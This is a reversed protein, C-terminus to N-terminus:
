PRNALVPRCPVPQRAPRLSVRLRGPDPQPGPNRRPGRGPRRGGEHHRSRHRVHGPPRRLGQLRHQPASPDPLQPLHHARPARRLMRHRPAPHAGDGGALRRLLRRRGPLRGARYAVIKLDQDLGLKFDFSYPHRKGTMVMDDARSLVLKVPRKMLHAGLAALCAWPTAQDEKGGFGGGLRNTDVEIRHMAIGLVRSVGRQVYKTAQTSTRVAVGGNEAPSAYSAQTELYLHEQGGMDARGEFLHACQAWATDVDGKRFTRSPCIFSGAQFADRASVLPPREEIDARIRNRARLAQDETRALVLAVPMGRYHVDPDAMLEEDPLISGIQNEGPIDRATLIREVGACALAEDLHLATIRGRASPSGFVAAYLTGEAVPIDNVYVSEGRVHLASDINKM